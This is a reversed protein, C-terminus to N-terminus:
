KVHSSNLRTSKRDRFVDLQGDLAHQLLHRLGEGGALPDLDAAEATERQVVAFRADAAIGLGALGDVQVALEHRVELRALLQPVPHILFRRVGLLGRERAPTASGGQLMRRILRELPAAPRVGSELLAHRMRTEEMQSN